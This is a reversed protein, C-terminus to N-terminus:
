QEGIECIELYFCGVQLEKRTQVDIEVKKGLYWYAPTFVDFEQYASFFQTFNHIEPESSNEKSLQESSNM